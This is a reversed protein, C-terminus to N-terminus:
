GVPRRSNLRSWGIAIRYIAWIGLAFLGIASSVNGAEEIAAKLEKISIDGYGQAKEAAIAAVGTLTLALAVLASLATTRRM